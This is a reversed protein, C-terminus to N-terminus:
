HEPDGKILLTLARASSRYREWELVIPHNQHTRKFKEWANWRELDGRQTWFYNLMNLEDENLDEM